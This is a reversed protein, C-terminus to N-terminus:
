QGNEFTLEYVVRVGSNDPRQQASEPVSYWTLAQCITNMVNYRLDSQKYKTPDFRYLTQSFFTEEGNINIHEICASEPYSYSNRYVYAMPVCAIKNKDPVVILNFAGSTEVRAESPDIRQMYEQNCFFCFDGSESIVLKRILDYYYASTGTNYIYQYGDASVRSPISPLFTLDDISLIRNLEAYQFSYVCTTIREDAQMAKWMNSSSGEIKAFIRDGKKVLWTFCSLSYTTSLPCISYPDYTSKTSTGLLVDWIFDCQKGDVDIKILQRHFEYDSSSTKRLYYGIIVYTSGTDVDYLMLWEFLSHAYPAQDILVHTFAFDTHTNYLVTSYKILTGYVIIKSNESKTSVGSIYYGSERNVDLMNASGQLSYAMTRQCTLANVSYVGNSLQNGESNFFQMTYGISRITGPIQSALWEYTHSVTLKNDSISIVRKNAIEAGVYKGKAASNNYAVGVTNGQLFPFSDDPQGAYDTLLLAITSGAILQAVLSTASWAAQFAKNHSTHHQVTGDPLVYQLDVKGTIKCNNNLLHINENM